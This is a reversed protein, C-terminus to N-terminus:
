FKYKVGIQLRWVSQADQFRFSPDNLSTYVNRGQSDRVLGVIGQQAFESREVRGWNGNLFNLLNQMDAFVEIKGFPLPVEQAIRLDLENIWPGRRDQKSVSQGRTYGNADM